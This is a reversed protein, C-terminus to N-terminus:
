EIYKGKLTFSTCTWNAIEHDQDHIAKKEKRRESDRRQQQQQENNTTLGKENSSTSTTVKSNHQIRGINVRGRFM